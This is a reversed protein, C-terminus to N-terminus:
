FCDYFGKFDFDSQSDGFTQEPRVIKLGYYLVKWDQKGGFLNSEQLARLSANRAVERLFLGLYKCYLEQTLPNGLLQRVEPSYEGELAKKKILPEISDHFM